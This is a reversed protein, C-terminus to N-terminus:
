RLIRLGAADREAVRNGDNDKVTLIGEETGVGAQVRVGQYCTWLTAVLDKKSAMSRNYWDTASITLTWELFDGDISTRTFVGMKWATPLLRAHYLSDLRAALRAQEERAELKAAREAQWAPSAYHNFLFYIGGLVAACVIIVWILVRLRSDLSGEEKVPVTAVDPKAHPAAPSM